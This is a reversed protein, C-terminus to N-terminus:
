EDAKKVISGYADRVKQYFFGCADSETIFRAIERVNGRESFYVIWERAHVRELVYGQPPLSALSLSYYEGSFGEARLRKDLELANM